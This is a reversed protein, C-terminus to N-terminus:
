EDGRRWKEVIREVWPERPYSTEKGDPVPYAKDELEIDPVKFDHKESSISSVSNVEDFINFDKGKDSM